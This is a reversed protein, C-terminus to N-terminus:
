SAASRRLRGEAPREGRRRLRPPSQRVAVQEGAGGHQHEAGRDLAEAAHDERQEDGLDVDLGVEAVGGGQEGRDQEDGVQGAEPERHRQGAVRGVAADVAVHDEGPADSAM